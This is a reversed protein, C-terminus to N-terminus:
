DLTLNLEARPQWKAEPPVAKVAGLFLRDMPLKLGALYDRVVVGRRVALAALDAETASLNALLLAEMEPLPIDKALGILNRPKAFDARKYVAKLLAPYDQDSVHLPESAAAAPSPSSRRKEALVLSLLQARKFAEREQALSATGVVTMKLAPREQLAKAVKDLGARAPASLTATGADFSVVSM